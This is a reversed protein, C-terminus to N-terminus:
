PEDKQDALYLYIQDMILSEEQDTLVIDVPEENEDMLHWDVDHAGTDWEYGYDRDISVLYTKSRIQVTLSM